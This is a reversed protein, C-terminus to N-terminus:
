KRSQERKLSQISVFSRLRQSTGAESRLDKLTATLADWYEDVDADSLERGSWISRDAREALAVSTDGVFAAAEKRTTSAPVPRGLDTSLDTVERWGNAIRQHHAGRNRRRRRRVLKLIVVVAGVAAVLLLPSAVILGVRVGAPVLPGAETDDVPQPEEGAEEEPQPSQADGAATAPQDFEPDVLPPPPPNQTRYDPEPQQPSSSTSALQDRPPTPHIAVWGAGDVPVEVWAEVETQLVEVPGDLSPDSPLFGMVVRTPSNGLDRFLLAYASAYQEANGLFPVRPFQGAFQTLRAESHGAQSGQQNAQRDGDSYAGTTVMLERVQDLRTGADDVVLLDPTALAQTLPAVSRVSGLRQVDPVIVEGALEDRTEPLRVEMVYRDGARLRRPTAATDTARNYRFSDALERDRDAGGDSGEFRLSIVEGVSPIWVDSYTGITITVEATEGDVDPELRAGIREFSGSDQLSPDDPDGGSVQWVLGDYSDMTALRVPVGAPLGEITMVVDPENPEGNADYGPKVYSRYGALPSPYVRPDFPPTVTQRWIERQGGDGPLRPGAIVGLGGAVALVVLASLLRPRSTSGDTLFPRREHERWSLWALMLLGLVLGNVLVSVPTNVGVAIGLGLIALPAVVVPAVFRLRQSISFAVFGSVYGLLVPIILLDGTDGVPPATTILEKWATASSVISELISQPSPIFGAIAHHRLSLVTAAVVYTVLGLAALVALPWDLVRGIHALALGVGFALMGLVLFEVGGYSSRFSWLAVGTMLALFSADILTRRDPVFRNM